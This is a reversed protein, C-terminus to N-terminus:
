AHDKIEELYHNISDKYDRLEITKVMRSNLPRIAKTKYDKTLVKNVKIGRNAQKFIEKAFEYWSIYGKNTIHHIGYQKKSILDILAYALDYTYTPSGIQDSVVSLENKTEALKLVTKIFNNGNVGFVWSIRVIYSNVIEKVIEEGLYKTVGYYNIPEPKDTVKFPITGKGNFVYDTSIYLFDAKIKKSADVLNRTGNVNVNYCVEKDDEAKDVATYAACHIVVSPKYENFIKDVDERKTIDCDGLDIGLHNIKKEELVRLVDYGLQGKAGTVLVKM